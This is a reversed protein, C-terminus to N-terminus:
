IKWLQLKSVYYIDRNKKISCGFGINNRKQTFLNTSPLNLYNVGLKNNNLYNADIGINLVGFILCLFIYM